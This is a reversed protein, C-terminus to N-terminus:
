TNTMTHGDYADDDNALQINSQMTPNGGNNIQEKSEWEAEKKQVIKRVLFWVLLINLIICALVCLIFITWQVKGYAKFSFIPVYEGDENKGFNLAEAATGYCYMAFRYNGYGGTTSNIKVTYTTDGQLQADDTWM